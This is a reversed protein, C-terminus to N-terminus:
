RFEIADLPAWLEPGSDVKVKVFGARTKGDPFTYYRRELEPGTTTNPLVHPCAPESMLDDARAFDGEDSVRMFELWTAFDRCWWGEEIARGGAAEPLAPALAFELRSNISKSLDTAQGNNLAYELGLQLLERPSLRLERSIEPGSTRDLEEVRLKWQHYRCCASFGVRAFQPDGRFRNLEEYLTNMQKAADSLDTRQSIRQLEPDISATSHPEADALQEQPASAAAPTPNPKNLAVSTSIVVLFAAWGFGAVRALSTHGKRLLFWVFLGPALAIGIGLPVSVERDKTEEIQYM